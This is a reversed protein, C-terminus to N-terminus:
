ADDCKYVKINSNYKYNATYKVPVTYVSLTKLSMMLLCQHFVNRRAMYLTHKRRYMSNDNLGCKIKIINRYDSVGRSM